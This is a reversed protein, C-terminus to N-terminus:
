RGARLAAMEKKWVANAALTKDLRKHMSEAAEGVEKVLAKIDEIDPEDSDYVLAAQRIHESVSLDGSMAAAEIAAKEEPSVLLNIRETRTSM